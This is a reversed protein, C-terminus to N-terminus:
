IRFKENEVIEAGLSGGELGLGRRQTGLPWAGLPRETESAEGLLGLDLGM